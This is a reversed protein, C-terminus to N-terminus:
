YYSTSQDQHYGTERTLQSYSKDLMVKRSMSMNGAGGRGTSVLRNSKREKREIRDSLDM